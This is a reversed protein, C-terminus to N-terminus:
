IPVLEETILNQDAIGPKPNYNEVNFDAACKSTWSGVARWFEAVEPNGKRGIGGGGRKGAGGRGM